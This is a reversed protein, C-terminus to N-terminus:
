FKAISDLRRKVPEIQAEFDKWLNRPLPETRKLPEKRPDVQKGNKWFRYCVHPGTALGTAGVYGIVQGQEVYIGKRMGKARRTMHLYQTTYTGNHRIKVYNGNARTYASSVVVGSATALIPTGKPAAYDTGLHAKWRKQVPHFRNKSYRSTIRAFEVPAKLFMRKLGEGKESYFDRIGSNKDEFHFSYFEQGLHVFRAGLIRGTGVFLTDDVYREEFIVEFRDGKQIRFFDITWAYVESLGVAIAPSVNKGSLTEYLSSEIVGSVSRESVHTPRTIKKVSLSDQLHFIVYETPTAEYVFYDAISSTDLKRFVWYQDGFRWRRDNFMGKSIDLLKMVRRYPIGLGDMVSGFAEDKAVTYRTAQYEALSLGYLYRPEESVKLSDVFRM